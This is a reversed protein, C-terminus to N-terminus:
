WCCWFGCGGGDGVEGCDNCNAGLVVSVVPGIERTAKIVLLRDSCWVVCSFYVDGGLPM